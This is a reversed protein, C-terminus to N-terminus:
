QLLSVRLVHTTKRPNLAMVIDPTGGADISDTVISGLVYSTSGSVGQLQLVGNYATGNDPCKTGKGTGDISKCQHIYIAGALLYGGGGGWGAGGSSERDGFFLLGRSNTIPAGPGWPGDGGYDGSCPALFVNGALTAPLGLAADPPDGGPCTLRSTDFGVVDRTGSNSGTCILGTQGSCTPPTGTLYFMTGGSGDGALTSPRVQSNSDLKIGGNVYYVGPDFIGTKNKIEIGNPYNGARYEACQPGGALEPCGNVGPNVLQYAGLCKSPGSCIGNSENNGPIPPVPVEAFPDAIPSTQQWSGNGATSFSGPPNTPLGFVGFSSGDYNPGGHTLDITGGSSVTNVTFNLGDSNVQISRTPGGKIRITPTGSLGMSNEKHPHLLIMPVPATQNVLGCKASAVVDQTRNGTILGALYVPVRDTVDVRMFPTALPGLDDATPKTIGTISAPFSYVVQNSTANAVLGVGNYGNHSAYWCPTASPTASCNHSEDQVATFGPVFAAPTGSVKGLSFYYMDMAGAQCAADAAGQAAQRHFWFNSYDVALGTFGLLFLALAIVVIITTQGRENRRRRVWQRRDQNLKM